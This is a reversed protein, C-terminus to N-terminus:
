RSQKKTWKAKGKRKPQYSLAALACLIGFVVMAWVAFGAAALENLQLLNPWTM